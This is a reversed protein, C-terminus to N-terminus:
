DTAFKVDQMFINGIDETAAGTVSIPKWVTMYGVYSASLLYNGKYIGNLTFRGSSDARAFTVLSSDIARVLSVTTYALGSQMMSDFVRGKIITKQGFSVQATLMLIVVFLTRPM